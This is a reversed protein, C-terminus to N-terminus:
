ARILTRKRQTSQFPQAIKNHCGRPRGNFKKCFIDAFKLVLITIHFTCHTGCYFLASFGLCLSSSSVRKFVFLLIVLLQYCLCVLERKGNFSLKFILCCSLCYLICCLNEVGFLMLYSLM